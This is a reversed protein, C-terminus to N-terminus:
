TTEDRRSKKGALSGWFQSQPDHSKAVVYVGSILAAKAGSTPSSDSVRDQLGGCFESPIEEQRSSLALGSPPM